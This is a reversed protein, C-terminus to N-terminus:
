WNISRKVHKKKNKSMMLDPASLLPLSCTRMMNVHDQRHLMLTFYMAKSLSPMVRYNTRATAQTAQTAADSGMEMEMEMEM